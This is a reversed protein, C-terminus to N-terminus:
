GIKDAQIKILSFSLKLIERERGQKYFTQKRYWNIWNKSQKSSNCSKCAGYLNHEQNTGGKSVPILHELTLDEIRDCYCCGNFYNLRKSVIEASPTTGSLGKERM